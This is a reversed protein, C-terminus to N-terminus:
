VHSLLKLIFWRKQFFFHYFKHNIFIFMSTNENFNGLNMKMILFFIQKSVFIISFYKKLQINSMNFIIHSNKEFQFCISVKGLGDRWVHITCDNCLFARLFCPALEGDHSPSVSFGSKCLSLLQLVSFTVTRPLAFRGSEYEMLQWNTLTNASIACLWWWWRGSYGYSEIKGYWRFYRRKGRSEIFGNRLSQM